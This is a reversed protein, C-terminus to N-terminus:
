FFVLLRKGYGLHILSRRPHESVFVSSTRLNKSRKTLKPLRATQGTRKEVKMWRRKMRQLHRRFLFQIKVTIKHSLHMLIQLLICLNVQITTREEDHQAGTEVMTTDPNILSILDYYLEPSCKKGMCLVAINHIYIYFVNVTVEQPAGHTSCVTFIGVWIM